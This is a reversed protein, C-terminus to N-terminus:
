SRSSSLCQGTQRGRCRYRARIRNLNSLLDSSHLFPIHHPLFSTLPINSCVRRSDSLLRTHSIHHSGSSSGRLLCRLMLRRLFLPSDLGRQVRQGSYVRLLLCRRSHHLSSLLLEKRRRSSRPHRAPHNRLSQQSRRLLGPARKSASNLPACLNRTCQHLRGLPRLHERRLQRSHLHLGTGLTKGNLPTRCCPSCPGCRISLRFRSKPRGRRLGRPPGLGTLRDPVKSGQSMKSVM